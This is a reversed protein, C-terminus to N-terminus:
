KVKDKDPILIFSLQINVKTDLAMVICRVNVVRIDLDELKHSYVSRGEPRKKM